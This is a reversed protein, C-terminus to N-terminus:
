RRRSATARPAGTNKTLTYHPTSLSPSASLLSRSRSRSRAMKSGKPRAAVLHDSHDGLPMKSARPQQMAVAFFRCLPPLVFAACLATERPPAGCSAARRRGAGASGRTASTPAVCAGSCCSTRSRATSRTTSGAARSSFASRGGSTRHRSPLSPRLLLPPSPSTTSPKALLVRSSSELSRNARTKCGAGTTMGRVEDLLRNKPLHNAIEPPLVVHSPEPSSPNVSLRDFISRLLFAAAAADIASRASSCCGHLQM